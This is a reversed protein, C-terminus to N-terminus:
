EAKLQYDGFYDFSNLKLSKCLDLLEAMTNDNVPIGNRMRDEVAIQEKEGHTYIRDCGEAKPSERIERLYTSFHQKIDDPNGFCAPDIAMFGHCINGHVGNVCYNSTGGQSLISSFLECIMGFGYGKHGGMSEDSGGLPLIGGGRKAKINEIVENSDNTTNGDIDVAWGDPLPKNMKHYVEVKGRTVVTTSADFFFDCPDAPVACAIPNSGVMAKRGNTPVMIAESNTCCLGILGEKSALQAYYGAIGFHNSNKASVIGIGSKKAKQIALQMARYGIIQGMANNGDIVASVPTEFIIEPKTNMDVIGKEINKHYLVMRQVGHSEIGYLDATLLVDRIIKAEDLTFGFKPFADLCLKDLSEYKIRQYGM